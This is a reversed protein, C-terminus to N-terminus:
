SKLWTIRNGDVRALVNFTGIRKVLAAYVNLANLVGYGEVLALVFKAKKGEAVIPPEIRVAKYPNVLIAKLIELPVREGKEKQARAVYLTARAEEWVDPLSWSANDTGLAFELGTKLAEAIPPTGVGHWLNSRPCMILWVKKEKLLELDEKSLHTGHVIADFGAELALELDGEARVKFTEAVHTMAPRRTEILKRLEDKSFGLPSALGLGDCYEPWQPGPRGLVIVRLDPVSEKSMQALKCGEGGGERFDILLGLGNRWALRYFETIAEILKESPTSALLRHKLGHPPAVLNELEAELGYEPFAHDASHTHANGPQPLLAVSRGGISNEPCMEYSSISIIVGNEVIVCRDRLAELEEGLLVLGVRIAFSERM